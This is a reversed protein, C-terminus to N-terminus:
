ELLIRHALLEVGLQGLDALQEHGHGVLHAARHPPGGGGQEVGVGADGLAHDGAVRHDVLQVLLDLLLDVRQQGPLCRDGGVQAQHHGGQM